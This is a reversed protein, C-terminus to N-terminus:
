KGNIFDSFNRMIRVTGNYADSYRWSKQNRDDWYSATGPPIKHAAPTINGHAYSDQYAHLGYGLYIEAKKHDTKWTNKAAAYYKNFWDRRSDISPMGFYANKWPNSMTGVLKAGKARNFHMYFYAPVPWISDVNKSGRGAWDAFTTSFGVARAARYTLGYHNDAYWLGSPDTGNVPEGTCYLYPSKEGDAKAPDRSIFSMTSPDYYRQSCYYLGTEADWVYGAYRLPQVAIAQAQELTILATAFTQSSTINGYADYDYRAFTTGSTDRLECVDGHQDSVIQFNDAETTETSSYM